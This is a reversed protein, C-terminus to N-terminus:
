AAGGAAAGAEYETDAGTADLALSLAGLGCNRTRCFDSDAGTEKDEVGTADSELTSSRGTLKEIFGLRGPAGGDRGAGLAGEELVVGLRDLLCCGVNFISDSDVPFFEASSVDIGM